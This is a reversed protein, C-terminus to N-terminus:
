TRRSCAASLGMLVSFLLILVASNRSCMRGGSIKQVRNVFRSIGTWFFELREPKYRLIVIQRQHARTGNPLRWARLNTQAKSGQSCSVVIVTDRDALFLNEAAM